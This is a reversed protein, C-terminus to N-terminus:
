VGRRPTAGMGLVGARRPTMGPAPRRPTMATVPAVMAAAAVTEESQQKAEAAALARLMHMPDRSMSTASSSPGARASSLLAIADPSDSDNVPLVSPLGLGERSRLDATLSSFFGDLFRQAQLSYQLAAHSTQLLTDVQVHGTVQLDIILCLRFDCRTSFM